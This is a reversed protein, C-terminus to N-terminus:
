VQMLMHTSHNTPIASRQELHPLVLSSMSPTKVTAVAGSGEWKGDKDGKGYSECIPVTKMRVPIM